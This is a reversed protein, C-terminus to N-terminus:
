NGAELIRSSRISSTLRGKSSLSSSSPPSNSWILTRQLETLPTGKGGGSVDCKPPSPIVVNEGEISM